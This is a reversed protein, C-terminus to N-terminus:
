VVRDVFDGTSEDKLILTRRGDPLLESKIVTMGEYTEPAPGSLRPTSGGRWELEV